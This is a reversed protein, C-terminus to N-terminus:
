WVIRQGRAPRLRSKGPNPGATPSRGGKVGLGPFSRMRISPSEANGRKIQERATVQQRM